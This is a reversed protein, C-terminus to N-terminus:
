DDIGLAKRKSMEQEIAFRINKTMELMTDLTEKNAGELTKERITKTDIEKEGVPSHSNCMLMEDVAKGTDTEVDERFNSLFNGSKGYERHAIKAKSGLFIQMFKNIANDKTMGNELLGGETIRM